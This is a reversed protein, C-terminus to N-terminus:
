KLGEVVYLDSLTRVYSYVYSKEDPTVFIGGVSDVGATDAPAIQKWVTRKGTALEIRSIVGPLGARNNVFISRGDDSWGDVGENAAISPIARAEGEDVPFLWRKGDAGFGGVFKGDPSVLVGINGGGEPTIPRPKGGVLDQVYMRMAHGSETGSFVIRKGDPLYAAGIHDIGDNTVVKSAGAKTPLLYIQEPSTHTICLAWKGDPSLAQPNGDGLKIAPSGDTGRVYVGYTAGGAEGVESFLLTKGDTSLAAPLSSDFWALEREQSDGAIHGKIETRSIERKLLVRGDRAADFLTLAAPVRALLRERGSLDVAHLARGVGAKTATFWIEQGNPSWALGQASVWGRSLITRTGSLDVVAVGGGDDGRAPHDLFAIRDGKPSIRLDGIWGPTKYVLNGAPFELKAFGGEDHATTLNSGDPSWDAWNAQELVERPAGGAIPL